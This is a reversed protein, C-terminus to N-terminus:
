GSPLHRRAQIRAARATTGTAPLMSPAEALIRSSPRSAGDVMASFMSGGRFSGRPLPTRFRTAKFPEYYSECYSPGSAYLKGVGMKNTVISWGDTLQWEAPEVGDATVKTVPTVTIVAASAPLASLLALAALVLLASKMLECRRKYHVVQQGRWAVAPRRCRVGLRAAADQGCQRKRMGNPDVAAPASRLIEKFGAM